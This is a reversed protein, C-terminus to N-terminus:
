PETIEEAIALLGRLTMRELASLDSHDPLALRHRFALADSVKLRPDGDLDFPAGQYDKGMLRRALPEAKEPDRLLLAVKPSSSVIANAIV